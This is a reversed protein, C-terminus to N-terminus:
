CYYFHLPDSLYQYAFLSIVTSMTSQDEDNKGRAQQRMKHAHLTEAVRM